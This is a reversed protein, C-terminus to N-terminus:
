SPNEQLACSCTYYDSCEIINIKTCLEKCNKITIIDAIVIDM